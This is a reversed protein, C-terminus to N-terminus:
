FKLSKVQEAVAALANAIVSGDFPAPQAAREELMPLYAPGVNKVYAELSPAAYNKGFDMFRQAATLDADCLNLWLVAAEYYELVTRTAAIQDAVKKDSGAKREIGVLLSETDNYTNEILRALKEAKRGFADHAKLYADMKGTSAYVESITTFKPANKCATIHDKFAAVYAKYKAVCDAYQAAIDAASGKLAALKDTWSAVSPNAVAVVEDPVQFGIMEFVAARVLSEQTIGFKNINPNGKYKPMAERILKDLADPMKAKIALVKQHMQNEKEAAAKQYVEHTTKPDAYLKLLEKNTQDVIADVKDMEAAFAAVVKKRVDAYTATDLDTPLDLFLAADQRNYVLPYLSRQMMIPLYVWFSPPNDVPVVKTFGALQELVKAHDKSRDRGGKTLKSWFGPAPPLVQGDVTLAVTLATKNYFDSKEAKVWAAYSKDAASKLSAPLGSLAKKYAGNLKSLAADMAKTVDAPKGKKTAADLEKYCTALASSIASEAGDLVPLLDAKVKDVLDNAMHVSSGDERHLDFSVVVDSDPPIPNSPANAPVEVLDESFKCKWSGHQALLKNIKDIAEDEGAAFGPGGTVLGIILAGVAVLALFCRRTNKLQKGGKNQRVLSVLFIGVNYTYEVAGESGSGSAVVRM